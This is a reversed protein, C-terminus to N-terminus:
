KNLLNPNRRHEAKELQCGCGPCEQPARKAHTRGKLNKETAHSVSTGCNPCETM